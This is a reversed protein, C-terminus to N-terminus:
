DEGDIEDIRRSVWLEVAIWVSKERLEQFTWQDSDGLVDNLTYGADDLADEIESEYRDFFEYLESSYIFGSFGGMIGHNYIDRVEDDDDFRAALTEELTSKYDM